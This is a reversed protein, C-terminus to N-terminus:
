RKSWYKLTSVKKWGNPGGNHIRALVEHSPELGTQDKYRAGYHSLYVGTMQISLKKSERDEYRYRRHGLIRNVDDVYIKHIQLPGIARGGDGPKIGGGTEIAILALIIKLM